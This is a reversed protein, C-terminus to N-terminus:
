RVTHLDVGGYFFSRSVIDGEVLYHRVVDFEGEQVSRVYARWVGLADWAQAAWWRRASNSDTQAHTERRWVACV